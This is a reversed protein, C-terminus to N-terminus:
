GDAQVARWDVNVRASEATGCVRVYPLQKPAIKRGWFKEALFIKEPCLCNEKQESSFEPFFSFLSLFASRLGLSCLLQTGQATEVDVQLFAKVASCVAHLTCPVCRWIELNPGGPTVQMFRSLALAELTAGLKQAAKQLKFEEAADSYCGEADQYQGIMFYLDGLLRLRSQPTDDPLQPGSTDTTPTPKSMLRSSFGMAKTFSRFISGRHQSVAGRLLNMRREM